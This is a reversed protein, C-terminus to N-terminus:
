HLAYSGSMECLSKARHYWSECVVHEIMWTHQQLWVHCEFILKMCGEEFKWGWFRCVSCGGTGESGGDIRWTIFVYPNTSCESTRTDSHRWQRFKMQSQLSTCLFDEKMFLVGINWDDSVKVPLSDVVSHEIEKALSSVQCILEIVWWSFSIGCSCYERVHKCNKREIGKFIRCFSQVNEMVTAGFLVTNRVPWLQWNCPFTYAKFSLFRPQMVTGPCMKCWLLWCRVYIFDDASRKLQAQSPFVKFLDM